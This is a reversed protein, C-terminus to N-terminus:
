FATADTEADSGLIRIFLRNPLCAIWAGAASVTGMSVCVKDRCSAQVVHVGGDQISITTPGVPGEVTVERDKDLPYIWEAGQAEILVSTAGGRDQYAYAALAGV